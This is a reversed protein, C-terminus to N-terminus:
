VLGNLLEPQQEMMMGLQQDSMNNLEQVGEAGTGSMNLQIVEQLEPYIQILEALQEDDLEGLMALLEDSLTYDTPVPLDTYEGNDIGDRMAGLEDYFKKRFTDIGERFGADKADTLREQEKIAEHEKDIRTVEKGLQQVGQGLQKMQEGLQQMAMQFQQAQEQMQQQMMATQEQAQQLQAQINQESQQKFKDIIEQKNPIPTYALVTERDVMPLGDEAPTQALRIMIDMMSAKNTAMASGAKIHIDFEGGLTEKSVKTFEFSGDETTTRVWRDMVWFQKMRSFWMKGIEGLAEEIYNNKLRIRGQSAEQLAMIANGAQIGTPKRGQTVDHVGSINDLDMKLENIHQQIYMPMPPAQERRVETGPNKRIILGPRNTLKGQAIGANKDVIWQQNGTNKANDLVLNNLDNIAEQPSILQEIEGAGWFEFPVDHDKLLVFPFRGDEYPNKKDSLVVNFDPAVTIVRGNPFARKKNKTKKGDKEEESDIYTYDKCWVELILIQTGNGNSEKERGAVLEQIKINGGELLSAKDPFLKKVQNIHKYTAYIVYEGSQIDTANPDPFFNMPNVVTCKVEGDVGAEGDWSLYFVCSGIQLSTTMAQLIKGRMKDREFEFDLAKNVVYAQRLGEESRPLVEFKHMQDAMIPKISEITSFVFNSIQNSRYEPINSNKFYDGKYAELYKKWKTVHPTKANKAENFKTACWFALQEEALQKSTKAKTESM